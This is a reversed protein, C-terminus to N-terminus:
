AKDLAPSPNSLFRAQMSADQFSEHPSLLRTSGKVSMLLYASLSGQWDVAEQLDDFIAFYGRDQASSGAWRARVFGAGRELSVEESSIVFLGKAEYAPRPVPWGLQMGRQIQEFQKQNPLRKYPYDAGLIVHIQCGRDSREYRASFYGMDSPNEGWCRHLVARLASHFDTIKLAADSTSTQELWQLCADRFIAIAQEYYLQQRPLRTRPKTPLWEYLFRLLRVKTAPAGDAVLRRYNPLPWVGSKTLTAPCSAHQSQQDSPPSGHM